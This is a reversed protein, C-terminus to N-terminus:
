NIPAVVVEDPWPFRVTTAQTDFSGSLAVNLLDFDRCITLMRVDRAPPNPLTWLGDANGGDYGESLWSLDSLAMLLGDLWLLHSCWPVIEDTSRVTRIRLPPGASGLNWQTTDLNLVLAGVSAAPHRALFVGNLLHDPVEIVGARDAVTSWNSGSRRSLHVLAGEAPAGTGTLIQVEHTDGEARLLIEFVRPEDEPGEPVEETQVESQLYNEAEARFQIQGPRLPAARSIGSSDTECFLSSSGTEHRNSISVRASEIPQGDASDLVRFWYDNAPLMIDVTQHREEITVLEPIALDRGELQVLFAYTGPKLVFTSYVGEDDTDVVLDEKNRGAQISIRAPHPEEGYFVTGEVEFLEPEITVVQDLGDGLDVDQVVELAGFTAVVSTPIPLPRFFEVAETDRREEVPLGDVLLSVGLEADKLLEPVELRVTLKPRKALDLEVSEVKGSRLPLDYPPAWETPSDVVVRVSEGSPVGFFVARVRRQARLIAAPEWRRGEADILYARTTDTPGAVENRRLSVLVDTMGASPPTPQLETTGSKARGPASIAWYEGIRPDWVAALNDGSPLQVGLQADEITEFRRFERLLAGGPPPNNGLFEESSFHFLHVVAEPPAGRTSVVVLDAPALPQKVPLGVDRLPTPQAPEWLFRGPSLGILGDGEIWFDFVGAEWLQWVGAEVTKKDWPDDAAVVVARFGAPVAPRSDTPSVDPFFALGLWGDLIGDRMDFQDAPPLRVSQCFSSSAAALVIAAAVGASSVVRRPTM